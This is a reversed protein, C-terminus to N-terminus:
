PEMAFVLNPRLLFPPVICAMNSLPLLDDPLPVGLTRQVFKRRQQCRRYCDPYKLRIEERLAADAVAYGDEARTSFYVPSSPIVDSQFVMGSRIPIESGGYVPSSLWEDLHILHGSNLFIGFQDFPLREQIMAELAGGTQGIRLLDFWAAMAEFYPGAFAPIYDQAKAPLDAPSEAVWGARCTNSGWYSINAEWPQGPEIRNGGPSALGIREPGTSLMMHCALPTGDYGAHMLLEHDTMGLRLAFHVRRMAESAKDSTYEFCAIDYASCSARLGHGAHMFLDTANLVRDLGALGRLTDVIYAPLDIATPEDYYKWGVCGVRSLRGIGEESFIAALKRSSDRPQDLLSFPQYREKRLRASQWLPSIPLYAECENGVVILPDRGPRVVLLAEEFRPDFNTLYALNAFHERDAYVVLHTLGREELRKGAADLRAQFEPFAACPREAAPPFGPWEIEILTFKRATM